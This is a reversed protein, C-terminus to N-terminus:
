SNGLYFGSLLVREKSDPIKIPPSWNWSPGVFMRKLDQAATGWFIARGGEHLHKESWAVLNKLPGVARSTVFDFVPASKPFDESRGKFIEINLDLQRCIESLFAVKKASSEILTVELGPSIMRLPVGPFGAGTGVDALRGKKTCAASVAFMSEGFHFKIIERVDTISTLSMKKNWFLLVSVYLRITECIECSASVGYKLLIRGIEADSITNTKM